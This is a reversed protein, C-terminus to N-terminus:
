AFTFQDSITSSIAKSWSSQWESYSVFSACLHSTLRRLVIRLGDRRLKGCGAVLRPLSQASKSRRAALRQGLDLSAQPGRALRDFM